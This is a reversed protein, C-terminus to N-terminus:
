LDPRRVPREARAETEALAVANPVQASKFEFSDCLEPPVRERSRLRVLVFLAYLLAVTMTAYIFTRQGFAPTLLTVLMPVLTASASWAVLMTSALPVFDAPDTRDNAHANAISYVTEVAGAFMAFVLMLLLLNDFSVALAAIGAAIVLTCTAILVIRRDTRDSLAGMPYQIFLLGFQMVFMLAAVEKQSVSNAAAYIPTFGQVLMSLGGSALVGIFAVPSIRWVMPIDISVRAPAPPTPLRTLGIPLIAVATFFITVIPALNGEVPIQGFLWAGAGLGIVYAMYFLAMARGRWHNESAHNLWSQTIIFNMNAAIGYLGRAVVWLLPHVGLSIMLAALIVLAMSCSFARAHGVRRILSGGMLCGILGGFAIATVAAGPVWDPAASRTLVFPVYALMMGNGVAVSTMSAVISAISLLSSPSRHM